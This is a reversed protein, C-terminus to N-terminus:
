NNRKQGRKDGKKVKSGGNYLMFKRLFFNWFFVVFVATGKAIMYNIKMEDAIVYIIGDTILLGTVGIIAFVTFEGYKNISAKESFAWKRSMVFNVIIGATFSLTSAIVADMHTLEKLVFLGGADVVLAVVSVAAYRIMEIMMHSDAVTKTTKAAVASKKVTTKGTEKQMTAVPLFFIVCILPLLPLFYRTQFGGINDYGTSLNAWTLLLMAFTAALIIMWSLVALIQLRYEHVFERWDHPKALNQKSLYIMAVVIVFIIVLPPIVINGTPLQSLVMVPILVANSIIAYIALPIHHIISALNGAAGPGYATIGFFHSWLLYIVTGGLLIALFLILKTKRGIVKNGLALMLLWLPAYAVKLLFLIGGLVGLLIMQKNELKKNDAYLKVVYAVFLASWAINIADGSLSSALFIAQPLLGIVALLIKAKKNPILRIALVFLAIYVFLNMLRALIRSTTPSQNFIMGIKLGIAQLLWNTPPYQSRLNVTVKTESTTANRTECSSKTVGGNLVKGVAANVVENDVCKSPMRWKKEISISRANNTKSGNFSQGTAIALANYYHMDPDALTLSNVQRIFFGGVLLALVAFVIAVWERCVCLSFKDRM